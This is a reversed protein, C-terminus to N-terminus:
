DVVAPRRRLRARWLYTELVLASLSAGITWGLAVGNLGIQSGLAVAGALCSVALGFMAWTMEGYRAEARLAAVSLSVFTWPVLAVSFIRLASSAAKYESGFLSLLLPACAILVVMLMACVMLAFGRGHRATKWADARSGESLAVNAVVSPVVIAVAVFSWAVYFYAAQTPGLIALVLLPLLFPPAGALLASPANRVSYGLYPRLRSWGVALRLRYHLGAVPLSVVSIAGVLVAPAASAIFIGDAGSPALLAVAVIRLVSLIVARLFAIEARRRAVALSDLLVIIGTAANAASFLGAEAPDNVLSRLDPAWLEIGIVFIISAGVSTAICVALSGNVLSSIGEDRTAFKLMGYPLGLGTLYTLLSVSSVLTASIGVAPAPALNAALLWFLFGGGATAILSGLLFSSSRYLPDRLHGKGWLRLRRIQGNRASKSYM